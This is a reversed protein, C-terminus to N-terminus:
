AVPLCIRVDLGDEAPLVVACREAPALIDYAVPPGADFVIERVPLRSLNTVLLGARPHVVHLRELAELGEQRRLRDIVALATRSAAEDVGAVADRVRRALDAPTAGALRDREITANALAVACGFYTPPFGPLTRRLDVPCSLFALPERPDAWESVHTRWLWAAVVDNHSLRVPCESQAEALLARLEVKPFLRRTWRLRDRPIARRRDDLFLGGRTMGLSVPPAPGSSDAPEAGTGASGEDGSEFPAGRSSLTPFGGPQLLGRDLWPPPVAHGHFLQSWTSLFYFYSFGDVIAHSLGVGLVSGDPTDTLRVRALPQGPVTEVPDVFAHRDPADAFGTTSTGVEFACGDDGPELGYSDDELRVLRSGAAPFLVLARRLSEALRDADMRGGYAFVFELPYAGVGTFVHDIPSLRIM